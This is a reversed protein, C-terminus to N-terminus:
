LFCIGLEERRDRAALLAERVGSVGVEALPDRGDADAIRATATPPGATSEREVHHVQPEDGARAIPDGRGRIKLRQQNRRPRRRRRKLETALPACLELGP